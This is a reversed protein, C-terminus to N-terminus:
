ADGSKDALQKPAFPVQCVPTSAVHLFNMDALQYGGKLLAMTRATEPSDAVIEYTSTAGTPDDEVKRRDVVYVNYLTKMNSFDGKINYETRTDSVQVSKAWAEDRFTNLQQEYMARHLQAMASDRHWFISNSMEMGAM